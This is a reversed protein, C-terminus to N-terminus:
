ESFDSTDSGGYLSEEDDSAGNMDDSDTSPGVSGSWYSDADAEIRHQFCRWAEQIIGAALHKHTVSKGHAWWAIQITLADEDPEELEDLHEQLEALRLLDATQRDKRLEDHHRSTGYCEDKVDKRVLRFLGECPNSCHPCAKKWAVICRYCQVFACCPHQPIFGDNKNNACVQCRGDSTADLLAAEQKQAETPMIFYPQPDGSPQGDLHARTIQTPHVESRSAASIANTICTQCTCPQCELCIRMVVSAATRLEDTQGVASIYSAYDLGEVPLFVRRTYNESHGIVSTAANYVLISTNTTHQQQAIMCILNRLEQPDMEGIPIGAHREICARLAIFNRGEFYQRPAALEDELQQFYDNGSGGRLRGVVELSSCTLINYDTITNPGSQGQLLLVGGNHQLSFNDPSLNTATAVEKKLEAIETGGHVRFTHRSPGDMVTISFHDIHPTHVGPVRSSRRLDPEEIDRPVDDVPAPPELLNPAGNRPLLYGRASSLKHCIWTTVAECVALAIGPASAMPATLIEWVKKKLTGIAEKMMAKAVSMVWSRNPVMSTAADRLSQAWKHTGTLTLFPELGGKWLDGEKEKRPPPCVPPPCLTPPCVIYTDNGVHVENNGWSALSTSYATNTCEAGDALCAGLSAMALCVTWPAGRLQLGRCESTKIVELPPPAADVRTEPAGVPAERHMEPADGADVSYGENGSHLGDPEDVELYLEDNLFVDLAHCMENYNRSRKKAVVSAPFGIIYKMPAKESMAGEMRKLIKKCAGDIAAKDKLAKHYTEQEKMLHEM